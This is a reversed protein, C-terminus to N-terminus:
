MLDFEDGPHAPIFGIESTPLSLSDAGNQAEAIAEAVVEDDGFINTTSHWLRRRM